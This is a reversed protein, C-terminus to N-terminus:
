DIKIVNVFLDENKTKKRFDSETKEIIKQKESLSLEKDTTVTFTGLSSTADLTHKEGTMEEMNKNIGDFIKKIGDFHSLKIRIDFKYKYSM